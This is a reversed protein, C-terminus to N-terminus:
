SLPAGHALVSEDTVLGYLSIPPKRAGRDAPSLSFSQEAQQGVFFVVVDVQLLDSSRGKPESSLSMWRKRRKGSFWRPVRDTELIAEHFLHKKKAHNQGGDNNRAFNSRTHDRRL